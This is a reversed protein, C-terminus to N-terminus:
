LAAESSQDIQDGKEGPPPFHGMKGCNDWKEREQSIDTELWAQISVSGRASYVFM